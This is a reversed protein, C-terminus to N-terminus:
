VVGNLRQLAPHDLSAIMRDRFAIELIQRFSLEPWIPEALQGTAVFVDYAGLSLNSKMRVWSIRAEAAARMASENWANSRGDIGPLNIPWLFLVDQRNLATFLQVQKIEHSIHGWLTPAILYSERDEKFELLM